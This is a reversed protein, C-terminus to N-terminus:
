LTLNIWFPYEISCITVVSKIFYFLIRSIANKWNTYYKNGGGGHEWQNWRRNWLQACWQTAELTYHSRHRRRWSKPLTVNNGTNTVHEVDAWIASTWANDYLKAITQLRLNRFSFVHTLYSNNTTLSKITERVPTVQSSDNWLDRNSSFLAIITQISHLIEGTMKFLATHLDLLKVTVAAFNKFASKDLKYGVLVM